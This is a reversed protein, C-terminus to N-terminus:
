GQKGKSVVAILGELVKAPDPGSVEFHVIQGQKIGLSLVGLISSGDVSRGQGNSVRVQHLSLNVARVLDAAPRAHLGEPASVVASGRSIM